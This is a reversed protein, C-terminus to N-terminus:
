KIREKKEKREKRGQQREDSGLCLDAQVASYPCCARERPENPSLASCCCEEGAEEECKICM